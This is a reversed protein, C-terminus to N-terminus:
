NLSMVKVVPEVVIEAQVSNAIFCSRHADHITKETLAVADSSDVSIVPKLIIKTFKYKGNVFELVGEAESTYSIIELERRQAFATFTTLTCIEISAVFLDEPTWVGEEGKFEPPSAVRLDPKGESQLLGARDDIWQLKTHYTFTKHKMKPQSAASEM